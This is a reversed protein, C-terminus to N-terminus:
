FGLELKKRLEDLLPNKEVLKAYKEQPTIAIVKAEAKNVIIEFDFDFNKLVARVKHLLQQKMKEIDSGQTTNHVEVEVKGDSKIVPLFSSLTSFFDLDGKKISYAYEMWAETLQTQGYSERPLDDANILKIKDQRTLEKLSVMKPIRASAGGTNVKVISPM